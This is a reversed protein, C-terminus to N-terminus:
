GGWLIKKIASWLSQTSPAVAEAAKETRADGPGTAPIIPEQPLPPPPPSKTTAGGQTGMRASVAQPKAALKEHLHVGQQVRVYHGLGRVITTLAPRAQISAGPFLRSLNLDFVPLSSSGGTKVILEVEDPSVGAKKVVALMTQRVSELETEVALELQNRSVPVNIEVGPKQFDMVATLNDTLNIKTREIAQWLDYVQGREFVKSFMEAGRVRNKAAMRLERQFESDGSKMLMSSKNRLQGFMELVPTMGYDVAIVETFLRSDFHEGGVAVGEVADTAWPTVGSTSVAADFTGGGFDVALCAADGGAETGNALEYVLAAKPEELFDVNTFGAREAATRMRSIALARSGDDQDEYEVPVGIVVPLNLRPSKSDVESRLAPLILGIMDEFDFRQGWSQTGPFPIALNIKMGSALRADVCSTKLRPPEGRRSPLDNLVRDCARGCDGCRTSHGALFVYQQIADEGARYDKNRDFYVVSPLCAGLGGTGSSSSVRVVDVRDAYAVSILSNTTGFDIGYGLVEGSM